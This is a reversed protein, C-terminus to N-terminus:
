EKRQTTLDYYLMKGTTAFHFGWRELIRTFENNKDAVLACALTTGDLAMAHFVHYLLAKVVKATKTHSLGPRVSLLEIRGIPWGICIQVAGMLEGQVEAVYWFPHIRDWSCDPLTYGYQKTMADVLAHIAEGEHNQAIRVTFEWPKPWHALDPKVFKERKVRPPRVGFPKPAQAVTTATEM